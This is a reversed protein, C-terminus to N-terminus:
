IWCLINWFGGARQLKLVMLNTAGTTSRCICQTISFHYISHHISTLLMNHVPKTVLWDVHLAGSENWWEPAAKAEGRHQTARIPPQVSAIVMVWCSWSQSCTKPPLRDNNLCLYSLKIADHSSAKRLKANADGSHSHGSLLWSPGIPMAWWTMLSSHVDKTFQSPWHVIVKFDPSTNLVGHTIPTRGPMHAGSIKCTTNRQEGRTNMMLWQSGENVVM